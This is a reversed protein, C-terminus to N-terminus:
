GSPTLPKGWAVGGTVKLALRDRSAELRGERILQRLLERTEVEFAEARTADTPYFAQTRRAGLYEEINPTWAASFGWSAVKRYLGRSELEEITNLPQFTRFPSYRRLLEREEPTETGWVRGAIALCGNPTLVQQIRPLVVQWDMWNLSDAATVLAYPPELPADEARGHIWTLNPHDGDPLERGREIMALSADLADVRDAVHVLNRALDGPGSGLDLVARPSDTILGALTSYLGEAYPPRLHYVRAVAELNFAQAIEPAWCEPKPPITM